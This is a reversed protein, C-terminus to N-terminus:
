GASGCNSAALVERVARWTAANWRCLEPCTTFYRTEQALDDIDAQTAEGLRYLAPTQPEDDRRPMEARHEYVWWAAPRSGPRHQALLVDRFEEWAARRDHDDAFHLPPM